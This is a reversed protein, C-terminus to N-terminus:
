QYKRQEVPLSDMMAFATQAATRQLFGPEPSKWPLDPWPEQPSMRAHHWNALRILCEAIYLLRLRMFDHFSNM